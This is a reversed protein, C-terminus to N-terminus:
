QRRNNTNGNVMAQICTDLEALTASLRSYFKQDLNTLEQNLTQSGQRIIGVGEEMSRKTEKWFEENYNRIKNLEELKEILLQVGDVFKRQKKVWENLKNTSEDFQQMNSKTIEVTDALKNTIEVFKRDDILIESLTKVIHQLKGGDCVLEKTNDSVISLTSSTEEFNITMEKYQKTLLAIMEKNDQQWKNLKEVSKNLQDFNEQVLKSLLVNMQKQFEETVKKMVEVLAETNSKQLLLTFEDFKDTLLQNTESMKDEIEVVEAHLKEGFLKVESSIDDQTSSVTSLTDTIEAINRNVDIINVLMNQVQSLTNKHDQMENEINGVSSTLSVINNEINNSSQTFATILQTQSQTQVILTNIDNTLQKFQTQFGQLLQGANSYFATQNNSQKLTEQQLTQLITQITNSMLNVAKVVENAAMNADSIGGDEKDFISSIIKSLIISGIMGTLSTFFATKLGELLLPISNDLKGTDFFLLGVTIGLFTGIVGLTSVLSPLQEVWRRKSIIENKQKLNYVYKICFCFAAIIIAISGLTVIKLVTDTNDFM